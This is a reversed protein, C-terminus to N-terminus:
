NICSMSFMKVFISANFHFTTNHLEQERNAHKKCSVSSQAVVSDLIPVSLQLKFSSHSSVDQLM